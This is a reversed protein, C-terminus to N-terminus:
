SRRRRGEKRLGGGRRVGERVRESEKCGSVEGGKALKKEKIKKEEEEKETGWGGMRGGEEPPPNKCNVIAVM